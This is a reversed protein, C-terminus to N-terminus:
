VGGVKMGLGGREIEVGMAFCFSVMVLGRVPWRIIKRWVPFSVWPWSRSISDKLGLDSMLSGM